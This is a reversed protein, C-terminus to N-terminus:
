ILEDKVRLIMLNVLYHVRNSVANTVVLRVSRASPLPLFWVGPAM